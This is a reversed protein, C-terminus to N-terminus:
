SDLRLAMEQVAAEIDAPYPVYLGANAHLGDKLLEVLREHGQAKRAVMPVVPVGLRQELLDADIRLGRGSAVDIMNLAVVSPLGMELLQVTFFLNRELNSADVINVLAGPSEDLLYATALKEELSQASLSYIGPLDVLVRGPLEKIWGEKKEVTVGAWNGVYQRTGTLVNFLSTKGANPNGALAITSVNM